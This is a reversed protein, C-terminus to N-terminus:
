GCASRHFLANYDSPPVKQASFSTYLRHQGVLGLHLSLNWHIHMVPSAHYDLTFCGRAFLSLTISLHTICLDVSCAISVSRMSPFHCRCLLSDHRRSNEDGQFTYPEVQRYSLSDPNIVRTLEGHFIQTHLHTHRKFFCEHPETRLSM